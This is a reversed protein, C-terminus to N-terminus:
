FSSLGKLYVPTNTYLIRGDEFVVKYLREGERKREKSRKGTDNNYQFLIDQVYMLTETYPPVSGYRKVVSPGANYAALALRIDGFRRLLRKLYKVGGEINEEPDYPNSVGMDAATEPMLQMLGIAGRSSVARPNWGSEMEIVAKVLDPDLAYRKATKEAIVKYEEISAESRYEYATGDTGSFAPAKDEKIILEADKHMPTNTYYENGNEDIYRYIEAFASRPILLVVVTLCIAFTRM